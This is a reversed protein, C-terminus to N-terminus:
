FVSIACVFHQRHLFCSLQVFTHEIQRRLRTKGYIRWSTMVVLTDPALLQMPAALTTMTLRLRAKSSYTLLCLVHSIPLRSPPSSCVPPQTYIQVTCLLRSFPAAFLMERVQGNESSFVDNWACAAIYTACSTGLDGIQQAFKKGLPIPKKRM